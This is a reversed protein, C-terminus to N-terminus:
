SREFQKKPPLPIEVEVYSGVKASNVAKVIREVHAQLTPWQAHGIVLIAIKRAKLNQQYQLNKDTTLLADYGAEEAAALLEGNRLRDWGLDVAVAVVHGTLHRSIPFTVGQDFLIRM